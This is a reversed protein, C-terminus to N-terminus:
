VVSKRDQGGAMVLPSIAQLLTASQRIQEVDDLTFRNLSGTGRQVGGARSSGPSVILVNTGLLNIEQRILAQTGEGVASMVIVGSVGIIIGLSTLMSRLKHKLISKFAIQLLNQLIVPLGM